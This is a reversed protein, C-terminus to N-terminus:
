ENEDDDAMASQPILYRSRNHRLHRTGGALGVEVEGFDSFYEKPTQLLHLIGRRAFARSGEVASLVPLPAGLM